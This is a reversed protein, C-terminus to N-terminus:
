KDKDGKTGSSSVGIGPFFLLIFLVLFVIGFGKSYSIKRGLVTFFQEEGTNTSAQENIFFPIYFPPMQRKNDKPTCVM